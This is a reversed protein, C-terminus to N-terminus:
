SDCCGRRISGDDSSKPKSITNCCTNSNASISEYKTNCFSGPYSPTSSNTNQIPNDKTDESTELTSDQYIYQASISVTIMGLLIVILIITYIKFRSKEIM